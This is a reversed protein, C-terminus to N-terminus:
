VNTDFILTKLAQLVFLITEQDLNLLKVSSLDEFISLHPYEDITFLQQM